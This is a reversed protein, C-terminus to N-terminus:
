LLGCAQRSQRPYKNLRGTVREAREVTDAIGAVVHRVSNTSYVIIEYGNPVAVAYACQGEWLPNDRASM